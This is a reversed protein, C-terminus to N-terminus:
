TSGGVARPPMMKPSRAKLSRQVAEFEAVTIIPPVEMIAHETEPKARGKKVDYTNFRHEGIYTTRTLVQHVMGKGWRGGHRTRINNENLWCAIAMVGIPGRGDAGELALRFIRRVTEAHLPDIELKKKIKAGRQEAAVARYGIPP